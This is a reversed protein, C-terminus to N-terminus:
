MNKPPRNFERKKKNMKEGLVLTEVNEVTYKYIRMDHYHLSRKGERAGRKGGGGSWERSKYRM